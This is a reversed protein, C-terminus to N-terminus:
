IMIQDKPAILLTLNKHQKNWTASARHCAVAIHVTPGTEIAIEQLMDATVPLCGSTRPRGGVFTNQKLIYCKLSHFLFGCKLHLSTCSLFLFWEYFVCVLVWVPQGPSREGCIM